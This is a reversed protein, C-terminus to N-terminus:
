FPSLGTRRRLFIAKELKTFATRKTLVRNRLRSNRINAKVSGIVARTDSLISDNIRELRGARCRM